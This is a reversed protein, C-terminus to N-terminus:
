VEILLLSLEKIRKFGKDATVLTLKEEIATAAILADPIAIKSHRKLEIAKNKIKHALSIISCFNM